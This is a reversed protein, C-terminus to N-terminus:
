NIKFQVQIQTESLLKEIDKLSSIVSSTLTGSNLANELSDLTVKDERLDNRLQELRAELM